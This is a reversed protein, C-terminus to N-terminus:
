KLYTKILEKIKDILSVPVYLTVRKTPETYKPKRGAGIRKGGRM